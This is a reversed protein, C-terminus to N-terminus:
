ARKRKNDVTLMVTGTLILGIAVAIVITTGTGGTFPLKTVKQNTIELYSKSATDLTVTIPISDKILEYGDPSKTEVVWYTKEIYAPDTKDEEGSEQIGNDNADDFWILKLGNFTVKGNADSISKMLTTGANSAASIADQLTGGVIKGGSVKGYRKGDVGLFINKKADEDSDAIHFEAGPLNEAGSETEGKKTLDFGGTYYKPDNENRSIVPKNGPTLFKVQFANKITGNYNVDTKTKYVVRIQEYIDVKKMGEKTLVVEVEKTAATGSETIPKTTKNVGNVAVSYDTKFTLDVWKAEAVPVSQQGGGRAQVTVDLLELNKDLTDLIKFYNAFIEDGMNVDLETGDIVNGSDDYIPKIKMDQSAVTYLGSPVNMQAEWTFEQGAKISYGNGGNVTKTANMLTELINKPQVVVDYILKGTDERKTQPITVFFPDAPKVVKPVVGRDDPLETVLYTGDADLGVGFSYTAKGNSDTTVIKEFDEVIDYDVGEVVTLPDELPKPTSRPAYIPRVRQIKFKIGPLPEKTIGDVAEGTGREDFESVDKAVYKYITLSRESTEDAIPGGVVKAPAAEVVTSTASHNLLGVNGFLTTAVILLSTVLNVKFRRKKM